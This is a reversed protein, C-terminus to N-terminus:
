AFSGPSAGSLDHAAPAPIHELTTPIRFSERLPARTKDWNKQPRVHIFMAVVVSPNVICFALDIM